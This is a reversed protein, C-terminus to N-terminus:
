IQCSFLKTFIYKLKVIPINVVLLFDKMRYMNYSCSLDDSISFSGSKLSRFYLLVSGWIPRDCCRNSNQILSAIWLMCLSFYHWPMESLINSLVFLVQQIKTPKVGKKIRLFIKSLKVSHITCQLFHEAMPLQNKGSNSKDRFLLENRKGDTHERTLM